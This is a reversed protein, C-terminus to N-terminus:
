SQFVVALCQSVWLQYKSLVAEAGLEYLHHIVAIIYTTIFKSFCIETSSDTGSEHSCVCATYVVAVKSYHIKVVTTNRSRM